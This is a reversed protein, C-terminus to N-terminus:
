HSSANPQPFEDDSLATPTGLSLAHLEVRALFEARELRHLADSISSGFAVAGHNALLYLNAMQSASLMVDAVSESGPMVFPVLVIQGIETMAEALLRPRPIRRAVAFATLAPAHVHLVCSVDGRALYVGRHMAWESSVEKPQVDSLSAQVLDSASLLRKEVRSRTVLVLDSNLRASLNGDTAPLCNGLALVRAARCLEETLLIRQSVDTKSRAM